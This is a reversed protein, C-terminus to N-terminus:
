NLPQRSTSVRHDALNLGLRAQLEEMLDIVLARRAPWTSSHHFIQAFKLLTVMCRDAVSPETTGTADEAMSRAAHIMWLALGVDRHLDLSCADCVAGPPDARFAVLGIGIERGCDCRGPDAELWQLSVPGLGLTKAERKM